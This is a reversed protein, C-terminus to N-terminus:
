GLRGEEFMADCFAECQIGKDTTLAHRKDWEEREGATGKVRSLAGTGPM